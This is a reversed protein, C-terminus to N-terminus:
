NDDSSLSHSKSKYGYAFIQWSLSVLDGLVYFANQFSAVLSSALQSFSMALAYSYKTYDYFIEVSM